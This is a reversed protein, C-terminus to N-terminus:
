KIKCALNVLNSDAVPNKKRRILDILFNESEELSVIKTRGQLDTVVVSNQEELFKFKLKEAKM